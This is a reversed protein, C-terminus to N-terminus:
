DTDEDEDSTEEEVDSIDETLEFDRFEALDHHSRIEIPKDAETKRILVNGLQTWASHIRNSKALRRAAYLLNSRHDTVRDNIYVNAKPDPNVFTKKRHQYFDTRTSNKRFRVILNRTPKADSCKGLRQLRVIDTPKLNLELTDRAFKIVKQKEEEEDCQTDPLGVIKVDNVYQQQELEDLKTKLEQTQKDQCQIDWQLREIHRDKKKMTAKLEVLEQQMRINDSKLQNIQECADLKSECVEGALKKIIDYLQTMTLDAGNFKEPDPIASTSCASDEDEKKNSANASTKTKKKPQAKPRRM